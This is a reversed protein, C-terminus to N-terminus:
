LRRVRSVCPLAALERLRTARIRGVLTRGLLDSTFLREMFPRSDCVDFGLGVLDRLADARFATCTVKITIPGDSDVLELLNGSFKRSLEALRYQELTVPRGNTWYLAASCQQCISPHGAISRSCVPCRAMPEPGQEDAKPFLLRVHCHPCVEPTGDLRGGCRPCEPRGDIALVGIVGLPGFAAGLLVGIDGAKKFSGIVGGLIGCVVATILMPFFWAAHEDSNSAFLWLVFLWSIGTFVALAGRVNNAVENGPKVQAPGEGESNPRAPPAVHELPREFPRGCSPCQPAHQSVQHGCDPCSRLRSGDPPKAASEPTPTRGGAELFEGCYRCKIATALISEACYPCSKHKRTDPEHTACPLPNGHDDFLGTLQYARVWNGNSGVRVLTDRTIAQEVAKQRLEMGSMPGFVEGRVQYYFENAM